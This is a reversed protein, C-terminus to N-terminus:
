SERRKFPISINLVYWDDDLGLNQVAAEECYITGFEVMDFIASLTDAYVRAVANGINKPTFIGLDIMGTYEKDTDLGFELAEVEGPLITCRIWSTGPLPIYPVNDWAIPTTTWNESLRTEIDIREQAFSM